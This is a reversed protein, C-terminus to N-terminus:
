GRAVSSTQSAPAPPSSARRLPPARLRDRVRSSVRGDHSPVIVERLRKSTWAALGDLRDLEEALQRPPGDKLYEWDLDPVDPARRDVGEEGIILLSELSTARSLTVYTSIWFEEKGRAHRRLDAIVAPITMGQAGRDTLAESPM